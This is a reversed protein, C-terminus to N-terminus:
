GTSSARESIGVSVGDVYTEAYAFNNGPSGSNSIVFAIHHWTDNSPDGDNGLVGVAAPTFWGGALPDVLRTDINASGQGFGEVQFAPQPAGGGEPRFRVTVLRTNNNNQLQEDGKFWFMITYANGSALDPSWADTQATQYSINNDFAYAQTSDKAGPSVDNTLGGGTVHVLDDPNVGADPHDDFDGEFDYYVVLNGGLYTPTDASAVPSFASLGGDNSAAVRYYYTMAPFVTNDTMNTTNASVFFNTLNVTFNSDGARQVLFHTETGYPDTWALDIRLFGVADATLSGPMTGSPFALPLASVEPSAASENGAGDVATVVYFYTVGNSVTTDASASLLANSIVLAYPGGPTTSRYLNYHSLDSETNNEWDLSVRRDIASAMLGAPASPPTADMPTGTVVGSIASETGSTTFLTAVYYYVTGNVVNTDQYDSATVNTALEVFPGSTALSRYLNYGALAPNPSDDWDLWVISEGSTASLNEPPTLAPTGALGSAMGGNMVITFGNTPDGAIDGGAGVLNTTYTWTLAGVTVSGGGQGHVDFLSIMTDLDYGLGAHNGVS